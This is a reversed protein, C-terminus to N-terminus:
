HVWHDLCTRRRGIGPLFVIKGHEIGVAEVCPNDRDMTYFTGLLLKEM